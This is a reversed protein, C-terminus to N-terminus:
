FRYVLRILFTRGPNQLDNYTTPEYTPDFTTRNLLNYVSGNVELGRWLRIVRLTTNLIFYGPVDPRHYPARGPAYAYLDTPDRPRSSLYYGNINWNFRGGWPVNLGAKAMHRPVDYLGSSAFSYNAYAAVHNPWALRVQAELGRIDTEGHNTYPMDKQSFIANYTHEYYLTVDAHVYPSFTYAAQGQYTRISEPKLNPNGPPFSGTYDVTYFERASPARFAEGYLLKLVLKQGPHYALGFRPSVKWGFTQYHDGRVGTTITLTSDPTWTDQAYVAWTNLTVPNIYYLRLLDGDLLDHWQDQVHNLTEREMALGAVLEHQSTLRSTYQLDGGLRYGQKTVFIEYHLDAPTSDPGQKGPLFDRWYNRLDYDQYYLTATLSGNTGASHKFQSSLYTDNYFYGEDKWRWTPVDWDTYYTHYYHIREVRFTFGPLTLTLGGSTNQKPNQRLTQPQQYTNFTLGDGDTQFWHGFGYLGVEGHTIGGQINVQSTGYDGGGADAQGWAKKPPNKTIVNIVGAYANTGYLASGPGLIVEVREVNTLPLYEDIAANEYVLDRQPLGDILLLVKDNYRNRIGRIWVSERSNTQTTVYVSVVTRLLDSLTRAGMDEIDQATFVTVIAPATRADEPIRSPTTVLEQKEYFLRLVSTEESPVDARASAAGACLILAAAVLESLSWRGRRVM